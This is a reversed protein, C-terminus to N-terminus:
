TRKAGTSEDMEEGALGKLEHEAKRRDRQIALLNQGVRLLFYFTVFVGILVRYQMALRDPFYFVIGLGGLFVLLATAMNVYHQLRM